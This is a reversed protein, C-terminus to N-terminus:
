FQREKDKTESQQENSQETWEPGIYSGAKVSNHVFLLLFNAQKQKWIKWKSNKHLNDNDEEMGLPLLKIQLM